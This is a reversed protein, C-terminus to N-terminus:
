GAKSISINDLTGKVDFQLKMEGVKIDLVGSIQPPEKSTGTTIAITGKGSLSKGKMNFLLATKQPEM